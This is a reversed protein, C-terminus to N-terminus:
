IQFWMAGDNTLRVAQLPTSFSKTSAGEIQTSGVPDLIVANGSDDIKKIIFERRPAVQWVHPLTLTRPGASANVLITYDEPDVEYDTTVTVIAGITRQVTCNASLLYDATASGEAHSNILKLEGGSQVRFGYGGSDYVHVNDCTNEVGSARADLVGDDTCERITGNSIGYHSGLLQVGRFCRHIQFGNLRSYEGSALDGTSGFYAVGTLDRAVLGTTVTQLGNSVIGNHLEVTTGPTDTYGLLQPDSVTSFHGGSYDGNQNNRLTICQAAGMYPTTIMTPRVIQASACRVDLASEASKAGWSTERSWGKVTVDNMKVYKNGNPVPCKIDGGDSGTNEIWVVDLTLSELTQVGTNEIGLGYSVANEIGFDKLLAKKFNNIGVPHHGTMLQHFVPSGSSHATAITGRIGRTCTLADNGAKSDYAIWEDDIKFTGSTQLGGSGGAITITTTTETIDASLTLGAVPIRDQERGDFTMGEIHVDASTWSLLSRSTLGAAHDYEIRTITRGLGILRIGSYAAGDLLICRNSNAGSRIRYAGAVTGPNSPDRYLRIEKISSNKCFEFAKRLPPGADQGPRWGFYELDVYRRRVHEILFPGAM